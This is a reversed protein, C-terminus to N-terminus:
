SGPEDVRGINGDITVPFVKIPRRAPPKLVAGTIIDYCAGHWPCTITHGEIRGENLPGGAHACEDQTAYFTGDINYVCVYTDGVMRQVTKGPALDSVVFENLRLIRQEM